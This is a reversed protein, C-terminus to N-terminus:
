FDYGFNRFVLGISLKQFYGLKEAWIGYPSSPPPDGKKKATPCMFMGAMIGLLMRFTREHPEQSLILLGPLIYYSIVATM